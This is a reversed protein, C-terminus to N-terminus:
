KPVFMTSASAVEIAFVSFLTAITCVALFALVLRRRAAHYHHKEYHEALLDRGHNIM